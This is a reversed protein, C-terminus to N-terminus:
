GEPAAQRGAAAGLRGIPKMFYVVRETEAFGLAAHMAHSECNDLLANSAFESCGRATAWREAATVLARAIGRLRHEPGVYIGELFGVPSTDCGEVYDRRLSVEAFGVAVDEVIAILVQMDPSGLMVRREAAEDAEDEDDLFPWLARRMARWDADDAESAPRINM